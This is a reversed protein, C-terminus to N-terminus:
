SAPLHFAYLVTVTGTGNLSATIEVTVPGHARGRFVDTAFADLDGTGQHDARSRYWDEVTGENLAGATDPDGLVVASRALEDRGAELSPLTAQLRLEAPPGEPGRAEVDIHAAAFTFETDGPLHVLTEIPRQDRWQYMALQQGDVIGVEARTPVARLDFEAQGSAEVQQVLDSRSVFNSGQPKDGSITVACGGLFILSLGAAALRSWRTASRATM